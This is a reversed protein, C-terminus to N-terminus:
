GRFPIASKIILLDNSCKYAETKVTTTINNHKKSYEIFHVQKDKPISNETYVTDDIGYDKYKQPDIHLLDHQFHYRNRDFIHILCNFVLHQNYGPGVFMKSILQKNKSAPKRNSFYSDYLIAKHKVNVNLAPKTVGNSGKNYVYNFKLTEKSDQNFDFFVLRHEAEEIFSENKCYPIFLYALLDLSSEDLKIEPNRKVLIDKLLFEFYKDKDDNTYYVPLPKTFADFIIHEKCDEPVIESYTKYVADKANFCFSIGSDRGYWKWQSLLDGDECFSLVYANTESCDLVSSYDKLLPTNILSRFKSEGNNYEESDNMFRIHSAYLNFSDIIDESSERYDKFINILADISTYHWYNINKKNKKDYIQQIKGSIYGWKNQDM